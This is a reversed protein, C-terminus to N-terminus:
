RARAPPRLRGGPTRRGTTACRRSTPSCRGRPAIQAPTADRGQACAAFATAKVDTSASFDHVYIYWGDKKGDFNDDDYQSTSVQVDPNDSFTGGDPYNGYDFGGGTPVFGSPCTATINTAETGSNQAGLPIQKSAVYGTVAVGSAGTSGKPGQTGDDGAAGRRGRPGPHHKVYRAM